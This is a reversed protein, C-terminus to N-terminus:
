RRAISFSATSGRLGGSLTPMLGDIEASFRKRAEGYKFAFVSGDGVTSLSHWYLWMEAGYQVARKLEAPVALDTERIPPTRRELARLIDDLAQTRAPTADSWSPPLLNAQTTLQGALYSAFEAETCVTEVDM